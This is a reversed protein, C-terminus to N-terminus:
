PYLMGEAVHTSPNLGWYRLVFLGFLCLFVGFVCSHIVPFQVNIMIFSVELFLFVHIPVISSFFPIDCTLLVTRLICWWWCCGSCDKVRLESQNFLM